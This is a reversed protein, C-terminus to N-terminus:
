GSEGKGTKIKRKRRGENVRYQLAESCISAVQGEKGIYKFQETEGVPLPATAQFSLLVRAPLFHKRHYHKLM